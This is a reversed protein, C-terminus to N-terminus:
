ASFPLGGVEPHVAVEDDALVGVRHRLEQRRGDLLELLLLDPV